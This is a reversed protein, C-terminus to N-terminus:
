NPVWQVRSGHRRQCGFLQELVGFVVVGDPIEFWFPLAFHRNRFVPAAGDVNGILDMAMAVTMQHYTGSLTDLDPVDPLLM